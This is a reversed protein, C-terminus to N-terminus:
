AWSGDILKAVIKRAERMDMEFVVGKKALNACCERFYGLDHEPYRPDFDNGIEDGNWGPCRKGRYWLNAWKPELKCARRRKMERRVVQHYAWLKGPPYKFVYDVVAHKRGWSL